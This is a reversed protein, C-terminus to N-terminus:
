SGNGKSKMLGDKKYGEICKNSHNIGKYRASLRKAVTKSSYKDRRVKQASNPQRIDLTVFEKRSIEVGAGAHLADFCRLASV